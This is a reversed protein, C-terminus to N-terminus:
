VTSYPPVPERLEQPYPLARHIDMLDLSLQPFRHSQFRDKESYVGAIEFRGQRNSLVEFLFPHPTVLWYEAVGSRAYLNLKRLRDHRETTPSLIEIVLDPPGDVHGPHMQSEQCVVLLDPQILDHDSLRVDMPAALLRCPGQRFQAWLRGSLEMAMAQHLLSPSSMAYPIGAILEWRQDGDWQSIEDWTYSRDPLPQM